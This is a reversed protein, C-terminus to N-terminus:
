IQSLNYRWPGNVQGHQEVDQVVDRLRKRKHNRTCKDHVDGFVRELPNARPCYTPLWLLVFRPPSAWWQEVAKAKPICSNDGVVSLRTIRPAPDTADLLPLLDRFWGHHKRPGLGYLRQGTTLPLAGALSPKENKGPTMVEGQTGQPRWAAGVTPLLHMAREDAFVMM